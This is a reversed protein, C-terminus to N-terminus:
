STDSDRILSGLRKQWDEGASIGRQDMTLGFGFAELAAYLQDAFALDDRNYSIFVNLKGGQQGSEAM